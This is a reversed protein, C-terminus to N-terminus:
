RTWMGQTFFVIVTPLGSGFAWEQEFLYGRRSAQIFYISDWRTLKTALDFTSENSTPIEPTVLTSSTDYAPGVGSGIAIALLLAKWAFFAGILSKPPSRPDLLPM